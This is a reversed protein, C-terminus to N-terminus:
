SKFLHLFIKVREELHSDLLCIIIYTLYLMNKNSRGRGMQQFILELPILSFFVIMWMLSFSSVSSSNFFIGYFFLSLIAILAQKLILSSSDLHTLYKQYSFFGKFAIIVVGFISTIYFAKRGFIRKVEEFYDMTLPSLNSFFNLNSSILIFSLIGGVLTYKLMQQRFWLTSDKLLFLYILTIQIIFLIIWLPNILCGYYGMLGLFLGMRYTSSKIVWLLTWTWLLSYTAQYTAGYDAALIKSFSWSSLIAFVGLLSLRRSFFFRLLTYFTLLFLGMGVFYFHMSWALKFLEPYRYFPYYNIRLFSWMNNSFQGESNFFLKLVEESNIDPLEPISVAFTVAILGILTKEFRDLYRFESFNTAVSEQIVKGRTPWSYFLGLLIWTTWFTNYAWKHPLYAVLGFYLIFFLKGLLIRYVVRDMSSNVRFYIKFRHDIEKGLFFWQSTIFLIYLVMMTAQIGQNLDLSKPVLIPTLLFSLYTALRIIFFKLKAVFDESKKGVAIEM